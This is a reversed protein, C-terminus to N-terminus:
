AEQKGDERRREERILEATSSRGNETMRQAGKRTRVSVKERHEVKRSIPGSNSLYFLPQAPRINTCFDYVSTPSGSSFVQPLVHVIFNDIRTHWSLVSLPIILLIRLDDCLPCRGGVSRVSIRDFNRTLRSTRVFLRLFAVYRSRLGSRVNWDDSDILFLGFLSKGARSVGYAPAHFISVTLTRVSTWARSSKRISARLTGPQVIRPGTRRATEAKWVHRRASARDRGHLDRLRGISGGGHRPSAPPLRLGSCGRAARAPSILCFSFFIIAVCASPSSSHQGSLTKCALCRLKRALSCRCRM